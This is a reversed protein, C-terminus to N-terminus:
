ASCSVAQADAGLMICDRANRIPKCQTQLERETEEQGLPGGSSKEDRNSILACPGRIKAPDVHFLRTQLPSKTTEVAQRLTTEVLGM